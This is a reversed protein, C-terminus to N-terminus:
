RAILLTKPDLRLRLKPLVPRDHAKVLDLRVDDGEHRLTILVDAVGLYDQLPPPVGKEDFLPDDGKLSVSFWVELGLKAAFEKFKLVDDPRGQVFDFGDVIITDAAFRGHVIMAELSKLVQETRAGDQNFNMIVRNRVIEDAFEAAEKMGKKKSLAKLIEEYWSIIHDVRSAYSVHIVHKGQLLKDTAIHVLCATKGVGKRSALLGVNGPGLGGGISKELSRIPSRQILEEKVMVMM